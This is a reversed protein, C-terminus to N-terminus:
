MFALLSLILVKESLPFLAKFALYNLYIYRIIFGDRLGIFHQAYALNLKLM